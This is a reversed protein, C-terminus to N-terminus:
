GLEIKVLQHVKDVSIADMCAPESCPTKRHNAASVCPSCALGAYIPTSNGLSGYLKPTEPGFLVFTKLPTIASFHGPGSDNTVMLRSVTYLIPMELLKLQGAFNICRPHDVQKRLEEAEAKENPAGTILVLCDEYENLIRQMLEIFNAKPWRRQPLLDSANPNILVLQHKDTQYDAYCAKVQNRIRAQEEDSFTVQDLKTDQDTILVKSYPVEASKAELAYILSIFNKAIHIHPNYSVKHTLMEGRYLGEGHFNHYGVRNNAGSFGTLLASVRSFLELDIATDIRNKRCWFLYRISDRILTFLNDECLTFINEQPITNLLDLSPKNKKFIVFFLNADFHKQARKMAPDAIITSGMESLEVFLINKPTTPQKGSILHILKLWYTALFTLPIGLHHDVKRMMDVNM